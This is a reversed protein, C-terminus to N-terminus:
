PAGVPLDVKWRGGERVLDMEHATEGIRVSVKARPGSASLLSARAVHPQAASPAPYMATDGHVIMLSPDASLAGGSADHAKQAIAKLRAQTQSSLFGFAKAGNGAYLADHFQVAVDPPRSCAGLVLAAAAAILFRAQM